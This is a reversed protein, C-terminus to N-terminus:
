SAISSSNRNHISALNNVLHGLNCLSPISFNSACMTTSNLNILDPYKSQKIGLYSNIYYSRIFLPYNYIDRERSASVNNIEYKWQLTKFTIHRHKPKYFYSDGGKRPRSNSNDWRSVTKFTINILMTPRQLVQAYMYETAYCM